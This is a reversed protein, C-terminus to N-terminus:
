RANVSGARSSVFLILYADDWRVRLRGSALPRRIVHGAHAIRDALLECSEQQIPLAPIRQETEGQFLWQINCESRCNEVAHHDKSQDWCTKGAYIHPANIWALSSVNALSVFSRSVSAPLILTHKELLQSWFNSCRQTELEELQMAFTTVNVAVHEFRLSLFHPSFYCLLIEVIQEILVLGDQELPHDWIARSSRLLELTLLSPSRPEFKM